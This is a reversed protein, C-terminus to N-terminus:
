VGQEHSVSAVPGACDITVVRRGCHVLATDGQHTAVVQPAPPAERDTPMLVTLFPHHHTGAFSPLIEVRWAGPTHPGTIAGKLPYNRGDVMFERDTGGIKDIRTAEPWLVATTMRGRDEVVTVAANTVDPESISHLLIRPTLEPRALEVDDLVVLSVSAPQPWDFLFVVHRHFRCLKAQSYCSSADGCVYTWGDGAHHAIIRGDRFEPRHIDDYSSPQFHPQNIFRQGGDNAYITGHSDFTEQPDYVVLTNHAITRIYYNYWHPNEYGDYAGSDIALDGKHYLAISNADRHCHNHM